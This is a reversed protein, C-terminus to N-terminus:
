TPSGLTPAEPAAQSAFGASRPLPGRKARLLVGGAKQKVGHSVHTTTLAASQSAGAKSDM